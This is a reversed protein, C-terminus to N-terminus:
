SVNFKIALICFPSSKYSGTLFNQMPLSSRLLWIQAFSHLAKNLQQLGLAKSVGWTPLIHSLTSYHPTRGLDRTPMPFCKQYNHIPSCDSPLKSLVNEFHLSFSNKLCCTHASSFVLTSSQLFGGDSLTYSSSRSWALSVCLAVPAFLLCTQIFFM